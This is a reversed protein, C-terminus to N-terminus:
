IADRRREGTGGDGQEERPPVGLLRALERSRPSASAAGDYKVSGTVVVKAGPVGLRRLREAYEEDQVAFRTVNAFLLRRALAGLRRLRAFSRPSLRANVVVVPVGRRKAARLFN